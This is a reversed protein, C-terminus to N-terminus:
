FLNISLLKNIALWIEIRKASPHMTQNIMKRNQIKVWCLGNMFKPSLHGM